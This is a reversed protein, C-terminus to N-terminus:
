FLTMQLIPNGIGSFSVTLSQLVDNLMSTMGAQGSDMKLFTQISLPNGVLPFSMPQEM